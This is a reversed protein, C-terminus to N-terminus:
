SHRWENETLCDLIQPTFYLSFEKKKRLFLQGKIIQKARWLRVPFPYNLQTKWDLNFLESAIGKITENIRAEEWFGFGYKMRFEPLKNLCINKQEEKGFFDFCYAAYAYGATFGLSFVLKGKSWDWGNPHLVSELWKVAKEASIKLYPNELRPDSLLLYYLTIAHYHPDPVHFHNEYPYARESGMYPYSGDKFQWKCCNFVARDRADLFGKDKTQLFLAYFFAACNASVNLVDGYHHFSKIFKGYGIEKKLVNQGARLAANLYSKKGTKNYAMLVIRGIISTDVSSEATIGPLVENWSGNQNQVGVVWDLSKEAEKKKGSVHLAKAIEAVPRQRELGTYVPDFYNGEKQRLPSLEELVERVLEKSTTSNM